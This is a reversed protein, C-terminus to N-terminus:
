GVPLGAAILALYQEMDLEDGRSDLEAQSKTAARQQELLSLASMIQRIETGEAGATPNLRSILDARQNAVQGLGQSLNQAFIGSRGIGREAAANETNTQVQEGARELGRSETAFLAELGTRQNGLTGAQLNFQADIAALAAALREARLSDLDKGFPAGPEDGGAPDAPAAGGGGGAGPAGLFSSYTNILDQDEAGRQEYWYNRDGQALGQDFLYDVIGRRQDNNALGRGVADSLNQEEAGRNQYWYSADGEAIGEDFLYDVFGKRPDTATATPSTTM